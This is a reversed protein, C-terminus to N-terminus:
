VSANLKIMLKVRTKTENMRYIQSGNQKPHVDSNFMQM